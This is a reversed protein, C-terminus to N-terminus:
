RTKRRRQARRAARPGPGRGDYTSSRRHVPGDPRLPDHRADTFRGRSRAAARVPMDADERRSV